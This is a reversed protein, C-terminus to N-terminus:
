QELVGVPAVPILREATGDLARLFSGPAVGMWFILIVIPLLILGERRNLDRLGANAPNKIEGLMVRKYM